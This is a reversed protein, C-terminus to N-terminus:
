APSRRAAVVDDDYRAAIEWGPEVVLFDAPDWDGGVLRQFLTLDGRVCSFAWGKEGAEERARAAFGGDPELGTEIYTLRRYASQYRYLEDYLYRGNEEGYKAILEELKAGIGTRQQALQVLGQGRELWGTSRFYTGPNQEFYERYKQRSGFLLAICDHARPIVLPIAVARLGNLGNGCLGYGLLIASYTPCATEGALPRDVSSSAGSRTAPDTRDVVRQLEGRMEGSGLDHLGKPLFEIDVQHPSRAVADCMERFLVECSILKLRM